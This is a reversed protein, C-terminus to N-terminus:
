ARRVTVLPMGPRSTAPPAFRVAQPPENHDPEAAEAPVTCPRCPPTACQPSCEVRSAAAGSRGSPAIAMTLTVQSTRM